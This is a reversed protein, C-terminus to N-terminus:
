PRVGLIALANQDDALDLGNLRLMGKWTADRRHSFLASWYRVNEVIDEAPWQLNILYHDVKFNAKSDPPVWLEPRNKLENKLSVDDHSSVFTIVDIDGPPRGHTAEIDEMFSGGVWQFGAIGLKRLQDRLNLFGNLIQV